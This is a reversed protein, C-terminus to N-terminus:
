SGAKKADDDKRDLADVLAYMDGRRPDIWADEGVSPWFVGNQPNGDRYLSSEFVEDPIAQYGLAHKDLDICWCTEPVKGKKGQIDIFRQMHRGVSPNPPVWYAQTKMQAQLDSRNIAMEQGQQRKHKRLCEIVLDPKFYLRDSSWMKKGAQSEAGPPHLVETKVVMFMRGLEKSTRGFVDNAAASMIDTWFQNVNVQRRIDVVAEGCAEVLWIRYPEAHIEM